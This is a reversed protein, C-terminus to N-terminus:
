LSALYAHCREINPKSCKYFQYLSLSPVIGFCSIDVEEFFYSVITRIEKATNVHEYEMIKSYDLNYMINFEVGTTLKWALKWLLTGESPIAARFEGDRSMLLASRAVVEPLNLIHELVAISIIRDYRVEANIEKIDVYIDRIKPLYESGEYLEKFPEVIDYSLMNSNYDLHNLTGAGLELTAKQTNDSMDSAVKRHMWAELKQAISLLKTGGSRNIKYHNKYIKIYEDDLITRLKPYNEFM